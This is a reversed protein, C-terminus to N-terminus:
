PHLSEAQAVHTGALPPASRDLWHKELPKWDQDLRTQIDAQLEALTSGAPVDYSKGIVHGPYRVWSLQQLEAAETLQMLYSRWNAATVEGAGGGAYLSITYNPKKGLDLVDGFIVLYRVARHSKSQIDVRPPSTFSKGKVYNSGFASVVANALGDCSITDLLKQAEALADRHKQAFDFAEAFNKLDDNMHELNDLLHLLIPLCQPHVDGIVPGLRAKIAHAFEAHSIYTWNEISQERRLGLIVGVRGPVSVSNWYNKFDNSQWHYIKNEVLFAYTAQSSNSSNIGNHILLDLREKKKNDRVPYETAVQVPGSHQALDFHKPDSMKPGSKKNLVDVLADLFLSGLGHKEASRFFFAYVNSLPVERHAIGAVSFFTPQVEPLVPWRAERLFHSLKEPLFYNM